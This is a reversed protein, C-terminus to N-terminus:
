KPMQTLYSLHTDRAVPLHLPPPVSMCPSWLLLEIADEAEVCAALKKDGSLRVLVEAPASADDERAGVGGLAEYYWLVREVRCRLTGDLGKNWTQRKVAALFPDRYISDRRATDHRVHEVGSCFVIQWM